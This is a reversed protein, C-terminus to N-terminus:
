NAGFGKECAKGSCELWNASGVRRGEESREELEEDGEESKPDVGDDAAGGRRRAGADDAAAAAADADAIGAAFGGNTLQGEQAERNDSGAFKQGLQPVRTPADDVPDLKAGM